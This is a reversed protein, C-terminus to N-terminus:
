STLLQSLEILNGDPDRCYVSRLHGQAGTREVPGALVSVGARQLQQLVEDIPVKVLFCLDATGPLAVQAKPEFEHGAQHLNIKQKGFHLAKRGPAFERAEMGLAAYFRCTVDIDRVTLVLHDLSAIM